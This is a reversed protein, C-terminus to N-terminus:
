EKVATIVVEDVPIWIDFRKQTTVRVCTADRDARFDMERYIFHPGHKQLFRKTQGSSMRGRRPRIMIKRGDYMDLVSHGAM